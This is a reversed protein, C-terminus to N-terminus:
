PVVPRPGPAPPDVYGLARHSWAAMVARYRRRAPAQGVSRHAPHVRPRRAAGPRVPCSIGGPHRDPRPAARRDRRLGGARRLGPRHPGTGERIWAAHVTSIGNAVRGPCGMYQRKVGATATGAKEQGTEDFALIKLRGKRKWTPPPRGGPRGRRVAAGHEDGRVRGLGRPEAAAADQGTDPRRRVLRDVV